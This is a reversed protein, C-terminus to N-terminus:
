VKLKRACKRSEAVFSTYVTVTTADRSVIKHISRFISNLDIDNDIMISLEIYRYDRYISSHFYVGIKEFNNNFM